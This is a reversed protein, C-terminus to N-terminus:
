ERIELLGPSDSVPLAVVISSASRELVDVSRDLGTLPDAYRVQASTGNVNSIKLVFQTLPLEQLINRSMVYLGIVFTRADVQFPFAALADQYTLSPHAYDGAFILGGGDGDAAAAELSLQRASSIPTAGEFMAAANRLARLPLTLVSDPDAPYAGLDAAWDPLLDYAGVDGHIDAFFWLAKLGKNLWFMSGRLLTKAKAIQGQAENEAGFEPPNFGYETMYHDFSPSDPPRVHREGPNLLRALSETKLYMGAGEPMLARYPPAAPAFGELNEQFGIQEDEISRYDIFFYPHYTQGRTGPPLDRIPVGFFTTNSLGWIPVAQPFEALLM